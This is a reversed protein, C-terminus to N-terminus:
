ARDIKRDMQNSVDNLKQNVKRIDNTLTNIKREASMLNNSLERIAKHLEKIYEANILEVKKGNLELETVFGKVVPLKTGAVATRVPTVVDDTDYMSSDM